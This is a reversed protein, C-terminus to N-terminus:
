APSFPNERLLRQEFRRALWLLLPVVVAWALGILGYLVYADGTITATGLKIGGYYSLPGCIFALGAAIFRKERLWGLCGNLTLGFNAWLALIWLPAAGSWLLEGRYVILGSQIYLTDLLLGIIVAVGAVAFDARPTDATAAHWSLFMMLGITGLWAYGLVVGALSLAWVVKFLVLNAIISM